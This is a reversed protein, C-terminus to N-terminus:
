GQRIPFTEDYSGGKARVSRATWENKDNPMFDIFIDFDGNRMPTEAFMTVHVTASDLKGRLSHLETEKYCIQSWGGESESMIYRNFIGYVPCPVKERLENVLKNEADSIIKKPM